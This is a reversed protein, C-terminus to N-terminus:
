TTTLVITYMYPVNTCFAQYITPTSQLDLQQGYNMARGPHADGFIEFFLIEAASQYKQLRNGHM